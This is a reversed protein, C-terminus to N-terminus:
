LLLKLTNYLCQLIKGGSPNNEIKGAQHPKNTTLENSMYKTVNFYMMLYNTNLISSYSYDIPNIDNLMSLFAMFM